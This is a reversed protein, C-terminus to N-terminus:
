LFNVAKKVVKECSINSLNVAEFGFLMMFYLEFSILDDGFKALLILRIHM